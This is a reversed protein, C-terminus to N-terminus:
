DPTQAARYRILEGCHIRSRKVPERQEEILGAKSLDDAYMWDYDGLVTRASQWESTFKAALDEYKQIDERTPVEPDFHALVREILEIETLKNM